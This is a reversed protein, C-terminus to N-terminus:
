CRKLFIEVIKKIENLEDSRFWKIEEDAGFWTLQRKAYRRTNQKILDITSAYQRAPTKADSALVSARWCALVIERYGVAKLAQCDAGYREVLGLVEKALGDAIMRDVRENIREYLEGRDMNLGIKLTKYRDEQFNHNKQLSSISQGTIHLVELARIIRSTDNPKLRTATAPDKEQLLKYLPALGYKILEKRYDEDRGPAEMLGYCLARIYLGTGGVIFPTRGRAIIGTIAEDALEVYQAADFSEDPSAVDILHHPVTDLEEKGLKATGIDLGRYVQQSDASVVEGNFTKALEIGTRSKGVCTPGCIIVIKIM